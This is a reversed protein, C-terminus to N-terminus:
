KGTLVAAALREYRAGGLGLHSRMLAVERVLLPETESAPTGALVAAVAGAVERPTQDPVRALTLHPSFREREPPFGLPGIAAEVARWLRTLAPLDGRVGAWVVRPRAAPGFSGLEGLRLTFPGSGAAALRMASILGDVQAVPVTGLFKLTLHV